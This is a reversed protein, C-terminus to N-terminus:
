RGPAPTSGSARCSPPSARRISSSCPRRSGGTSSTSRCITSTTARWISAAGRAADDRDRCISPPSNRRSCDASAPTASSAHMEGCLDRLRKGRYRTARKAVFEPMVDELAVDDDYLRKFAVLSSVLTGAKSSEVGPTLLSCCRISITSKRWWATRACINAVVPAPVGRAEYEGTGRDFGPTLLTM